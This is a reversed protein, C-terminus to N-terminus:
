CIVFNSSAVSRKRGHEYEEGVSVSRIFVTARKRCVTPATRSVDILMVSAFKLSFAKRALLIASLPTATCSTQKPNKEMMATRKLKVDFRNALLKSSLISIPFASTVCPPLPNFYTVISAPVFFSFLFQCAIRLTVFAALTHIRTLERGFLREHRLHIFRAFNEFSSPFTSIPSLNTRHISHNLEGCPFRSVRCRVFPPSYEVPIRTSERARIPLSHM